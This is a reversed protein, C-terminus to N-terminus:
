DPTTSSSSEGLNFEQHLARVAKPGDKEAVVFSINLESSGQAIMRVNVDRDAVAKFVRAAVGPTGKMGAGVAAVVCVDDESTINKVFETGLLGLELANTAKQLKERPVVFSIGAESSSQSIMLINVGADGLVRFVRAAVGPLGAMGAGTVSIMAVKDVLTVAKVIGESRVAQDGVVLTGESTLDLSSRIRIPIQKDVVSELARPHIAKAGFYAMESAEAYSIQRLVKAKPEIKPDATMLGEVDKWILIEDADLARGILTATYDSGGRGLTTTLGHPSCAGYGAVVPLKGAELMPEVKAKVKQMTVDLLPNAEGFNEDTTIGADGGTLWEARLGLGAAVGCIIPASLREGFSLLYDKSRPTLERLRAISRLIGSMEKSTENLEELVKELINPSRISERATKSHLGLQKEAFANMMEINGEVAKESVSALGDTVGPLASTVLVVQHGKTLGDRVIEVARIIAQADGVSAGGFKM